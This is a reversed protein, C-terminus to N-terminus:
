RPRTIWCCLFIGGANFAFDLNVTLHSGRSCKFVLIAYGRTGVFSEFRIDWEFPSPTIKTTASVRWHKLAYDPCNFQSPTILASATWLSPYSETSSDLKREYSLQRIYITQIETNECHSAFREKVFDKNPLYLVFTNYAECKLIIAFLREPSKEKSCNLALLLYRYRSDHESFLFHGNLDPSRLKTFRGTLALGKNTFAYPARDNAFRPLPVYEASSAFFDIRDAFIDSHPGRFDVPRWCWAFLSEDDTNSAIEQQLRLFVQHGEGYLLPMNVDFLGLLCYAQDELKTTQRRSAWSLRAAVSAENVADWNAIYKQNIGTAASIKSALEAKDGIFHWDKDYFEVNFPALLEQM